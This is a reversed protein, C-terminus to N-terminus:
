VSFRNICAREVSFSNSVGVLHKDITESGLLYAPFFKLGRRSFKWRRGTMILPLERLIIICFAAVLQYRM